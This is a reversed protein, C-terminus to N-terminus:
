LSAVRALFVTKSARFVQLPLAVLHSRFHSMSEGFGGSMSGSERLVTGHAKGCILQTLRGQVMLEQLAPQDTKLGWVAWHKFILRFAALDPLLEIGFRM